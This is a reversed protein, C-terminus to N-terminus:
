KRKIILVVLAIGMIAIIGILALTMYTLEFGFIVIVDSGPSPTPQPTVKWVAKFSIDSNKMTMLFGPSYTTGDYSWGVFDYGAKTGYYYSVTFKSGSQVHQSPVSDSGGNTDYSVIYTTFVHEVWNAVFYM